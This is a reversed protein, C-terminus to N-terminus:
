TSEMDKFKGMQGIGLTATVVGQNGCELAMGYGMKGNVMMAKEMKGNFNAKGQDKIQKLSGKM